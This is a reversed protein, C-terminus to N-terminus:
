PSFVTPQIELIERSVLITQYLTSMDTQYLTLMNTSSNNGFSVMIGFMWTFAYNCEMKTLTRPSHVTFRCGNYFSNQYSADIGIGIENLKEQIGPLLGHTDIDMPTINKMQTVDVNNVRHTMSFTLTFHCIRIDNSYLFTSCRMYCRVPIESAPISTEETLHVKTDNNFKITRVYTNVVIDKIFEDSKNLGTSLTSFM